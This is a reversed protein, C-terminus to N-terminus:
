CSETDAFSLGRAHLETRLVAIAKSGVGHLALLDDESVAAIQELRTYGAAHLAKLAPRGIGRPFVDLDREDPGRESRDPVVTLM